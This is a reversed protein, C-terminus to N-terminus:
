IRGRRKLSAIVREENEVLLLDFSGDPLAKVGDCLARWRKELATPQVGAELFALAEAVNQIGPYDNGLILDLIKGQRVPTEDSLAKLETKKKAM